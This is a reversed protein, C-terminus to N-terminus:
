SPKAGMAWVAVLWGVLAIAVLAGAARGLRDKSKASAIGACILAVLFLVAGVDATIYGIGIWAPDDDSSDFEKSYLWEGGIRMLIYSPLAAVLLTRFAFRRLGAPDGGGAPTLLAGAAAVVAGVLLMAGLVHLFLPLNWSDPRIDALLGIM